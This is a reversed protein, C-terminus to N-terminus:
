LHFERRYVNVEYFTIAAIQFPAIPKIIDLQIFLLFLTTWSNAKFDIYIFDFFVLDDYLIIRFKSKFTTFFIVDHYIMYWLQFLHEYWNMDVMKQSASSSLYCFCFIIAQSLKEKVHVGININGNWSKTIFSNCFLQQLDTKTKIHTKNCKWTVM